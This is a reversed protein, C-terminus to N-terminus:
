RKLLAATGPVGLVPPMVTSLASSISGAGAPESTVADRAGRDATATNFQPPELPPEEKLPPGVAVMDRGFNQAYSGLVREFTTRLMENGNWVTFIGSLTGAVTVCLLAYNVSYIGQEDCLIAHLRRMM